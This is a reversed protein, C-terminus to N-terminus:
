SIACEKEGYNKPCPISKEEGNITLTHYKKEVLFGHPNSDNTDALFRIVCREGPKMDWFKYYNNPLQERQQNNNNEKVPNYTQRLQELTKKTSM